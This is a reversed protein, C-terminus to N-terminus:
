KRIEVTENVGYVARTASFLADWEGKAMERVRQSFFLVYKANVRKTQFLFQM